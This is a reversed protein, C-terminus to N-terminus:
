KPHYLVSSVCSAVLRCLGLLNPVRREPQSGFANNKCVPEVKCTCSAHKHKHKHKHENRGICGDYTNGANANLNANANANANADANTGVFGTSRRGNNLANM